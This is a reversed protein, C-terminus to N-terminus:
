AGEGRLRIPEPRGLDEYTHTFEEYLEFWADTHTGDRGVPEPLATEEPDPVDLDLSELYPIAIEFWETRLDDLTETRFGLDVVDDERPGPEFLTLAHPFLRDLAAQVREHSESGPDGALRELWSQAHERHYNEEAIAKGVRDAIPAYSTGVLAELRLHEATDYLYSRVIVDAWDGEEFPLEVLTSHTWEAPDREWVLDPEAYGFEQLLDYWLRAHGLEDQAINALALDSELSPAYIQWETYREAAVFEDDALRFLLEEVAGRERDGLDDPGLTSTM